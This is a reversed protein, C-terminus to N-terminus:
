GMWNCKQPLIVNKPRDDKFVKHMEADLLIACNAMIHALHHIKSDSAFNEGCYWQTLHRQMADYFVSSTVETSRWNYRGYKTAGDSMAGGLAYFAVPPVDSMKPKGVAASSKVNSDVPKEMLRRMEAYDDNRQKAFEESNAVKMQHNKKHIDTEKEDFPDWGMAHREELIKRETEKQSADKWIDRARVEEWGEIDDMNTLIAVPTETNAKLNDFVRIEWPGQVARRKLEVLTSELRIATDRRELKGTIIEPLWIEYTYRM